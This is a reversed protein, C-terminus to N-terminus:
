HLVASGFISFFFDLATVALSPIFLERNTFVIALRNWGSSMHIRSRLTLPVTIRTVYGAWRALPLPYDSITDALGHLIVCIEAM